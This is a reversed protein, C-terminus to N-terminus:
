YEKPKKEVLNGTLLKQLISPPMETDNILGTNIAANVNEFALGVLLDSNFVNKKLNILVPHMPDSGIRAPIVVNNKDRLVQSILVEMHVLDMSSIDAYIKYFKLFLHDINKFREKGSILREVYLVIEKLDQKKLLM